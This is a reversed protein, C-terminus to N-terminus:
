KPVGGNSGIGDWYAQGNGDIIAHETATITVGAGGFAIPNWSSSNFYGFTTLGDFTVVSGAKLKSLDLTSGGPVAIDKLVIQTCTAVAASVSAYTTVTCTTGTPTASTTTTTTPAATNLCSCASSVRSPLNSCQTAYTPLATTATQVATTYTACFASADASQGLLARLCNDHSCDRRGLQQPHGLAIPLLSALFLTARM